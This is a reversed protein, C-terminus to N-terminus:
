EKNCNITGDKNICTIYGTRGNTNVTFMYTNGVANCTIKEYNTLNIYNSFSDKIDIEYGGSCLQPLNIENARSKIIITSLLSNVARETVAKRVENAKTGESMSNKGGVFKLAVIVIVVLLIVGGVAAGIIIPLKNNSQSTQTAYVVNPNYYQPNVNNYQQNQNYYQQNMNNYQTNQNYNQQNNMDYNVNQNPNVNNHINQNNNINNNMENNM